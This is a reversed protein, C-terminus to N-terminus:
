GDLASSSLTQLAPPAPPLSVWYAAIAKNDCPLVVMDLGPRLCSIIRSAMQCRSKYHKDNQSTPVLYIRRREPDISNSDIRMVTPPQERLAEEAREKLAQAEADTEGISIFTARGNFGSSSSSKLFILPFVGGKAQRGAPRYPVNPGEQPLPTELM